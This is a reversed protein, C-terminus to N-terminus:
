STYQNRCAPGMLTSWHITECNSSSTNSVVHIEFLAQGVYSPIRAGIM